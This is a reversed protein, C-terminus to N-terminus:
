PAENKTRESNTRPAVLGAEYAAIVLHVRDRAELKLLLRRVHSKVTSETVNLRSVIETNTKGRAILTLVEEERSSLQTSEPFSPTSDPEADAFTGILRRTMTPALLSAGSYVVRIARM